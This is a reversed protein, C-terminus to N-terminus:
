SPLVSSYSQSTLAILIKPCIPGASGYDVDQLEARNRGFVARLHDNEPHSTLFVRVVSQGAEPVAQAFAAALFEVCKEESV